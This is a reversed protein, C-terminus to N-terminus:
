INGLAYVIYGGVIGIAYAGVIFGLM